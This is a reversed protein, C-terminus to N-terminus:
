YGLKGTAARRLATLSSRLLDALHPVSPSLRLRRVGLSWVEGVNGAAVYARTFHKLAKIQVAVPRAALREELKMLMRRHGLIISLPNASIRVTDGSNQLYDVLYEEVCCVKTVANLRVFLDWDQCSRMQEDLGGVLELVSRRALVSSFTGVANAVLLADSALGDVTENMRWVEQGALDRGTFWTYVFGYEEGKQQLLAMQKELKHPLWRDDSDIFAVFESTSARIGTNRAAAGGRNETHSVYRVRPDAIAAVIAKTDDTSCDDVVVVELDAFTQGLVSAICEELCYGRNYTPVIVSVVAL